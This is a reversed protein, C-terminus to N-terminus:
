DRQIFSEYYIHGKIIKILDKKPTNLDFLDIDPFYMLKHFISKTFSGVVLRVNKLRYLYALDVLDDYSNVLIIILSFEDFKINDFNFMNNTYFINECNLFKTNILKIYVDSTDHILIRNNNM